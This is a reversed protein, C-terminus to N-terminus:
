WGTPIPEVDRRSDILALERDIHVKRNGYKHGGSSICSNGPEVGCKICPMLEMAEMATMAREERARRRMELEENFERQSVKRGDIFYDSGDFHIAAGYAVLRRDSLNREAQSGRGWLKERIAAEDAAMKLATAHNVLATLDEVESGPPSQAGRADIFGGTTYNPEVLNTVEDLDISVTYGRQNLLTAIIALAERDDQITVHITTSM